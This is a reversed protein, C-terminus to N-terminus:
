RLKDFRKRKNKNDDKFLSLANPVYVIEKGMVESIKKKKVQREKM